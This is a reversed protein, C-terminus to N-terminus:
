CGGPEVSLRNDIGDVGPIASILEVTRLNEAHTRVNGSLVVIGPQVVSVRIQAADIRDHHDLRERILSELHEETLHQPHEARAAHEFGEVGRTADQSFESIGSSEANIGELTHTDHIIQSPPQTDSEWAVGGEIGYEQKGRTGGIRSGSDPQHSYDDVPSQYEYGLRRLNDADKGERRDRTPM